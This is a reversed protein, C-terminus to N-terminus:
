ATRRRRPHHRGDAVTLRGPFVPAVSDAVVGALHACRSEPDGDQREVPRRESRRGVRGFDEQSTEQVLNGRDGPPRANEDARRANRHEGHPVNVPSVGRMSASSANSKVISLLPRAVRCVSGCGKRQLRQLVGDAVLRQLIEHGSAVGM